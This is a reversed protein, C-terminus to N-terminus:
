ELSSFTLPLMVWHILHMFYFLIFRVLLLLGTWFRYRDKYQGTYADLLPKLSDVWGLLRYQSKKKLCQISLVIITYPILFALIFIVALIFLAIHKGRFYNINGDYLWVVQRGAPYDLFTFSLATFVADLIKAYSLLFLTALVKTSNRGFLRSAKLNYNSAIIILIIILWIYVPFVFQLWVKSYMNMGDYFCTEIGSNLSLWSTFYSLKCVMGRLTEDDNNNAECPLFSSRNAQVINAYLILGSLTGKTVTLDCLILFAVLVMGAVGFAVLLSLYTNQCKRCRNSGLVLSYGRKCQGCLVASRNFQCQEDPNELHIDNDRQICYDFPCHKHVTIEIGGSMNAHTTINDTISYGVWIGAPWHVRQTDIDCTPGEDALIFECGCLPPVGQLTFGLPCPHLQITLTPPQYLYDFLESPNEVTLKLYEVSNGSFVAYSLNTCYRSVSQSEQLSGLSHPGPSTHFKARVVGRVPGNRQGVTIVTVNFHAGSFSAVTKLKNACNQMISDCFCVGIPDSSIDSKGPGNTFNFTADYITVDSPNVHAPRTPLKYSGPNCSDFYGGYISEGAKNATNNKFEFVIGTENYPMGPPIDPQLPCPYNGYPSLEEKIYMAGGVESARNNIFSVKTNLRPYLYSYLLILGGGRVGSNNKFVNQGELFVNSKEALLGTSNNNRYQCSTFTVNIIRHLYVTAQTVSARTLNYNLIPLVTSESPSQHNSFSTNQIVLHIHGSTPLSTFTSYAGESTVALASGLYGTNNAFTCKHIRVVSVPSAQCNYLSVTRPDRQTVLDIWVAGGSDATNNTFTVNSLSITGLSGVHRVNQVCPLFQTYIVIAGGYRGVGSRFNSDEISISHYPTAPVIMIGLNGAGLANGYSLNQWWGKPSEGVAGLINGNMTVNRMQITYKRCLSIIIGLGGFADIAANRVIETNLIHVSSAQDTHNVTCSVEPPWTSQNWSAYASLSIGGSIVARGGEIRSNAIVIDHYGSNGSPHIVSIALNAGYLTVVKEDKQNGSLISNNIQITVHSCQQYLVINLGLPVPLLTPFEPTSGYMFKSSTIALNVEAIKDPILSCQQENLMFYVMANGGPHFTNGKNFVFASDTISSNGLLNLTGLGYGTSNQVLVGSLDLDEVLFFALAIVIKQLYYQQPIYPFLDVVKSINTGCHVFSLNAILLSEVIGFVFGGGNSNCSIVASPEMSIFSQSSPVLQSDGIMQLRNIALITLPEEATLWHTGSLFYFTTDSQFYHQSRSVYHMLTQCRASSATSPCATDSSPTVYYVQKAFCGRLIVVTNLVALLLFASMTSLNYRGTFPM